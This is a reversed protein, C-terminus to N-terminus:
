KMEVSFYPADRLVVMYHIKVPQFTENILDLVIHENYDKCSFIDIFFSGTGDCFHGTINSTEILQVLTYGAKNDVGFHQVQPPGYAKMDIDKVLRESFDTIATACKINKNGRQANILLHKGWAIM